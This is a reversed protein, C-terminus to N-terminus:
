NIKKQTRNSRTGGWMEQITIYENENIKRRKTGQNLPKSPILRYKNRIKRITRIKQEIKEEQKKEELLEKKYKDFEQEGIQTTLRPLSCRNYESRSNLVNHEKRAQQILVSEFIQREFSSQCTRIIKMGFQVAELKQETHELMAHKLMHSTTRLCAMDNLHEWGREYTTRSTEGKNKLLKRKRKQAQKEQEGWNENKEIAQEAEQQCSLCSTEYVLNRQHCDQKVLKETNQKTFCM